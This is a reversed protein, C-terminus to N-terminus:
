RSSAGNNNGTGGGNGSAGGANGTAGGGNAGSGGHNDIADFGRGASPSQTPGTLPNRGLGEVCNRVIAAPGRMKPKLKRQDLLFPVAAEPGVGGLISQDPRGAHSIRGSPEIRACECPNDLQVCGGGHNCVEVRGNLLVIISSGDNGIYGDFLTGRVGVTSTPTKISYSKSGAKGSAFRFAGRVANLVIQNGGSSGSYVFKDLYIAANPGVALRTQDNLLLEASAGARSRIREGLHVAKGNALIAERAKGLKSTVINIVEEARGIPEASNAYGTCASVCGFVLIANAWRRVSGSQM